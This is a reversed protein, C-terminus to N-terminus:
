RQNMISLECRTGRFAHKWEADNPYAYDSYVVTEPKGRSEHQHFLVTIQKGCDGVSVGQAFFWSQSDVYRGSTDKRLVRGFQREVAASLGEVAVAPEIVCVSHRVGSIAPRVISVMLTARSGESLDLEWLSTFSVKPGDENHMMPIPTPASAVLKWGDRAALKEGASMMDDPTAPSVCVSDLVSVVREAATQARAACCIPSLALATVFIAPLRM